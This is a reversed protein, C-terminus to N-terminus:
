RSVLPINNCSYDTEVVDPRKCFQGLHLFARPLDPHSQVLEFVIRKEGQGKTPDLAHCFRLQSM